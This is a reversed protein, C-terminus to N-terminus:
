YCSESRRLCGSIWAGRRAALLTSQISKRPGAVISARQTNPCSAEVDLGAGGLQLSVPGRAELRLSHDVAAVLAQRGATVHQKAWSGRWASIAPAGQSSTKQGPQPVLRAISRRVISRWGNAETPV